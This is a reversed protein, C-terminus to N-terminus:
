RTRTRTEARVMSSFVGDRHVWAHMLAASLHLVVMAFLGWALTGHAARFWAYLESNVPAIPPLMLGPVITIPWNGASLTAWGLIPLAFMLVYLVVHSARAAIAQWRPISRPLGPAPHLRRNLLRMVALLLIALGLPRHLNILWPRWTLSTMMGAGIFLMALIGAAMMWHLIRAALNFHRVECDGSHVRVGRRKM